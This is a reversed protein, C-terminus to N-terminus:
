KSVKTNTPFKEKKYDKNNQETEKDINITNLGKEQILKSQEDM